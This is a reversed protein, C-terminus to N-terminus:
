AADRSLNRKNRPSIYSLHLYYLIRPKKCLLIEPRVTQGKAKSKEPTEILTHGDLCM